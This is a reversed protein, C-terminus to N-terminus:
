SRCDAERRATEDLTVSCQGTQVRRATRSEQSPVTSAVSTGMGRHRHRGTSNKKPASPSASAEPRRAVGPANAASTTRQRIASWTSGRCPRGAPGAVAGAVRSGPLDDAARHIRSRLFRIAHMRAHVIRRSDSSQQVMRAALARCGCRDGADATCARGHVYLGPSGCRTAEVHVSHADSWDDYSEVARATLRFYCRVWPRM